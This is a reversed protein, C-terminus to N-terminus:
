PFLRSAHSLLRQSSRGIRRQLRLFYHPGHVTILPKKKVLRKAGTNQKLRLKWRTFLRGRLELM